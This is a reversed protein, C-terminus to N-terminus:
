SSLRYCAFSQRGARDLYLSALTLIWGEPRMPGETITHFSGPGGGLLTHRTTLYLADLAGAGVLTAHVRPGATMYATRYGAEALRARLAGGEVWAEGAAVVRAGAAELARKRAADAGRRTFVHIQRDPFRALMAPPIDLSASVIAIDPQAAMGRARRWAILDAYEEAMSVPPDAQAAGAALQRFYRASTILVDAQAALEQYLRWDRANALAQPVVFEGSAADRMSIRGDVSAIYNAYIFPPRSVSWCQREQLYLGKLPREAGAEPYLPLVSM